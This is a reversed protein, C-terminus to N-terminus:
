KESIHLTLETRFLQRKKKDSSRRIPPAEFIDDPYLDPDIIWMDNAAELDATPVDFMALIDHRM